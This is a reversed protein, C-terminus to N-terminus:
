GGMIMWMYILRRGRQHEDVSYKPVERRNPESSINFYSGLRRSRLSAAGFNEMNDIVFGGEDIEEAEDIEEIMDDLPKSQIRNQVCILAKAIQPTLSVRANDRDETTPIDDKSLYSPDHDELKEFTTKMKAYVWFGRSHAILELLTVGLFFYRPSNFM